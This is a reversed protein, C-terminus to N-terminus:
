DEAVIFTTQNIQHVRKRTFLSTMAYIIQLGRGRNNSEDNLVDFFEALQLEKEPPDWAIASDLIIIKIITDFHIEVAIKEADDKPLGHEVINSLYESTVLRTKLAQMDSGGNNLIFAEAEAAVVDVQTLQSPIEKYFHRGQEETPIAQLAIFSYDDNRKTYGKSDILDYCVHPLMICNDLHVDEKLLTMLQDQGLEEGSENFCDFVGDTILCIVDEKTFPTCLTDKDQYVFDDIWGLPISGAGDLTKTAKTKLNHLFIPPHGANLSTLCMTDFDLLCYCMTMFNDKFLRKSFIANLLTLMKAPSGPHQESRISLNIISKVATMTLAAQIGHGSIDAIYIIYQTDSLRVCDFLDGGITTWPTYNASLLINEDILLWPPLMYSQVSRATELDKMIEQYVSSLEDEAQKREISESISITFLKLLDCEVSSWVHEESCDSFGLSGWLTDKTYIPLTIFAKVEENQLHTKFVSDPM